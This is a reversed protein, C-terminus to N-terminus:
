CEIFQQVFDDIKLFPKLHSNSCDSRPDFIPSPPTPKAPIKTTTTSNSNTACHRNSDRWQLWKGLPGNEAEKEKNEDKWNLNLVTSPLYFKGILPISSSIEPPPLSLEVLQVVVVAWHTIGKSCLYIFFLRSGFKIQFEFLLLM